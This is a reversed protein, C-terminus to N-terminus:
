AWLVRITTTFLFILDLEFEDAVLFTGGPGGIEQQNPFSLPCFTPLQPFHYMEIKITKIISLNICYKPYISLPRM